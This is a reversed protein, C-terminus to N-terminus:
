FNNFLGPLHSQACTPTFAGPVGILIGKKGNFFSKLTTTSIGEPGCSPFKVDKKTPPAYAETKVMGVTVEPIAINIKKKNKKKLYIIIIYVYLHHIGDGVKIAASILPSTSFRRVLLM